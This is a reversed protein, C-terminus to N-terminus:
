GNRLRPDVFVDGDADVVSPISRAEGNGGVGSVDVVYTADPNITLLDRDAVRDVHRTRVETVGFGNLEPEDTMVKDITGRVVKEKVQDLNAMDIATRDLFKRYYDGRFMFGPEFHSGGGPATSTAPSTSAPTAPSAPTARSAAAAGAAAPAAAAGGGHLPRMAGDAGVKALPVLMSGDALHITQPAGAPAPLLKVGLLTPQAPAPVPGGGATAANSSPGNTTAATAASTVPPTVAQTGARLATADM